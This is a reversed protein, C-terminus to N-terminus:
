ARSARRIGGAYREDLDNASRIMAALRRTRSRLDHPWDHETSWRAAVEMAVATKDVSQRGRLRRAGLPNEYVNGSWTCTAHPHVAAVADSLLAPPVYTEITYGRTIWVGDGRASREIEAKVRKKTASLSARPRGRDSDILVAFNRNIRPLAVFEEVAPDDASLHRLLSGGYFMLSYHVGEVLESDTMQLWLRVYIRDSPGEVWVVANAQVLDSARAGLEASIAAVESPEIAPSVRSRGEVQRISSISAKAADLLHASHTAILYQNSTKEHLYSLLKRQLTPHLHIEPEEICVLYGSLVTATAALIVVEHLGTGYNELPLRRGEHEVFITERHHPIEIRAYPDDFLTAVFRSIDDFRERDAANAYDPNQLRALRDILGPGGYEDHRTENTGTAKIERIAPITAVSPLHQTVPVNRLVHQLVRRADEGPGGGSTGTMASSLLGIPSGGSRGTRDLEEFQERSSIWEAASGRAPIAMEFQFWTADSGQHTFQPTAFSARLAETIAPRNGSLSSLEDDTFQYPISVRLGRQAGAGRGVPTDVDKLEVPRGAALAPLVRDAVALVNSKGSNNPGAVLHVKAMPAVFELHDFGFSRFGALAFGELLVQSSM